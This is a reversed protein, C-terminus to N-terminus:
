VDGERQHAIGCRSGVVELGRAGEGLADPLTKGHEVTITQDIEDLNERLLEAFTFMVRARKVLSTTRWSELASLAAGVAREVDNASAFAVQKIREGTAPNYVDGMRESQEAVIDGDIWHGVFTM